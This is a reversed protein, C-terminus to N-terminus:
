KASKDLYSINEGRMCVEQCFNHLNKDVTVLVKVLESESPETQCTLLGGDMCILLFLIKCGNELLQCAM